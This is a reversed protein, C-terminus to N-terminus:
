GALHRGEGFGDQGREKLRAGRALLLADFMEGEGPGLSVARPYRPMARDGLIDTEFGDTERIFRQLGAMGYLSLFGQLVADLYSQLIPSGTDAATEEDRIAEYLFIPADVEPATEVAVDAPDVVRRGYGAEREDVLPLHDALDYVVVGQVVHSPERRVSLVAAERADRRPLWFRRWGTVEARRIALFKTRLTARNVLSGYGFYAVIRGQRVLSLFEPHDKHVDM